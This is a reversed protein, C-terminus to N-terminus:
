VVFAAKVSSIISRRFSNASIVNKLTIVDSLEDDGDILIKTSDCKETGIIEKIKYLVKDRMYDNVMLYKKGKM